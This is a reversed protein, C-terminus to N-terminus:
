KVNTIAQYSPCGKPVFDRPIIDNYVSCHWNAGDVPTANKCSRCNMEPAAGEHCVKKMPCYLCKFYTPNESMREPPTTATIISEAKKKFGEAMNWNLKVVEIHLDDDNKCVNFYAGYELKYELGYVSMQVFHQPKARAVGTDLLDSFSKGTNNTKFEGLLPQAIRYRPPLQIIADLSGGYHGGIASMRYQSHKGEEDLPSNPDFTYVTAGIGNLFEIYREEERHGRNFLRLKRGWAEIDDPKAENGCWRFVYWLYRSCEHGILSAGLHWRHPEYYARVAYENIDHKLRRAIANPVGPSNLDLPSEDTM